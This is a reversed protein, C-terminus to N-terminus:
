GELMELLLSSCNRQNLYYEILPAKEKLVELKATDPCDSQVMDACIYGIIDSGKYLPFKSVAKVGQSELVTRYFCPTLLEVYDTHVKKVVDALALFDLAETITSILTGQSQFSTIGRSISEYSCSVQLYSSGNVYKTGNHFLFVGVRDAGSRVRIEALLEQINRNTRIRMSAVKISLYSTLKKRAWAFFLLLLVLVALGLAMATSSLLSNWLTSFM